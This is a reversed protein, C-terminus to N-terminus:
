KYEISLIKFEKEGNPLSVKKTEGARAGLIGQAMPSSVSIKRNVPDAEDSSTLIYVLEKSSKLDLLKVIAGIRIEEKNVTFEDVLRSTKLRNELEAIRKLVLNQKEKAYQYGANESLDGQERTEQIERSLEMKENNLKDLEEKLKKFGEKTLYIDPM